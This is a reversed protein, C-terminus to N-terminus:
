YFKLGWSLKPCHPFSKSRAIDSDKQTAKIKKDNREEERLANQLENWCHYCLEDDKWPIQAEAGCDCNGSALKLRRNKNM